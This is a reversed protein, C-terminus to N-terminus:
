LDLSTLAGAYREAKITAPRPAGRAVFATRLGAGRAGVVDWDLAAALRTDPATAELQELAYAYARHNLKYAGLADVGIVREFRDRLRAPELQQQETERASNTLVVLRHAQAALWDLGESFDPFPPIEEPVAGAAGKLLETFPRFDDALSHMMALRVAAQLKDQQSGLDLLTGNLDSLIMAM